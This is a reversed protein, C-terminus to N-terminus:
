HKSKTVIETIALEGSVIALVKNANEKNKKVTMELEKFQQKMNRQMAIAGNRQDAIPKPTMAPRSIGEDGDDQYEGDFTNSREYGYISSDEASLIELRYCKGLIPHEVSDTCQNRIVDGDYGQKEYWSIPQYAGSATTKKEHKEYKKFTEKVMARINAKGGNNRVAKWFESRADKDLNKFRSM